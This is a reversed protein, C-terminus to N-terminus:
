QLKERILSSCIRPACPSMQAYRLLCTLFPSPYGRFYKFVGNFCYYKRALWQAPLKVFWEPVHCLAATDSVVMLAVWELQMLCFSTILPSMEPDDVFTAWGQDVSVCKQFQVMAERRIGRLQEESPQQSAVQQIATYVNRLQSNFEDIVRFGPFLGLRLLGATLFFFETAGAFRSQQESNTPTRENDRSKSPNTTDQVLCRDKSAVVIGIKREGGANGSQEKCFYHFDFADKGSSKLRSSLPGSCMQLLSATVGLLFPRSACLAQASDPSLLDSELLDVLPESCFCALPLIRNACMITMGLFWLYISVSLGM